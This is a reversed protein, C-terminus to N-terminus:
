SSKRMVTKSYADYFIIKKTTYIKHIRQLQGKSLTVIIDFGFDSSDFDGNILTTIKDVCPFNCTQPVCPFNCTQPDNSRRRFLRLSLYQVTGDEVFICINSFTQPLVNNAKIMEMIDDVLAPDVSSSFSTEIVCMRLCNRQVAKSHWATVNKYNVSNYNNNVDCFRLHDYPVMKSHWM